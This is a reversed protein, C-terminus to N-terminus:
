ETLETRNNEASYEKCYSKIIMWFLVLTIPPWLVFLALALWHITGEEDKMLLVNVVGGKNLVEAEWVEVLEDWITPLKRVSEQLPVKHYGYNLFNVASSVTITVQSPLKYYYHEPDLYFLLPEDGYGVKM